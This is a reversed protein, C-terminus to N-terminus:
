DSVLGGDLQRLRRVGLEGMFPKIRVRGHIKYDRWTGATLYPKRASLWPSDFTFDRSHISVRCGSM